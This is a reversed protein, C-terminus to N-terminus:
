NATPGDKSVVGDLFADCGIPPCCGISDANRARLIYAAKMGCGRAYYTCGDGHSVVIKETPCGMDFAARNAVKPVPNVAPVCTSAVGAAVIAALAHGLRTVKTGRVSRTDVAADAATLAVDGVDERRGRSGLHRARDLGALAGSVRVHSSRTDHLM